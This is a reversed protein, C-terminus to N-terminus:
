SGAKERQEVDLERQEMGIMTSWAGLVVTVLLATYSVTVIYMGWQSGQILAFGGAIGLLYAVTLPIARSMKMGGRHRDNRHKYIFTYTTSIAIWLGVLNLVMLEAGLFQVPQPVLILIAEVLLTLLYLTQNYSRVRFGPNSVVEGLNISTAIFLLGILAASSTGLMVYLDHWADILDASENGM